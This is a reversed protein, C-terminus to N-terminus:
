TVNNDFMASYMDKMILTPILLDSMSAEEFLIRHPFAHPLNMMTLESGRCSFRRGTKQDLSILQSLKTSPEPMAASFACQRGLSLL